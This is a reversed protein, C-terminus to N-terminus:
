HTTRDFINKVREIALFGATVPNVHVASDLASKITQFEVLVLMKCFVLLRNLVRSLMVM